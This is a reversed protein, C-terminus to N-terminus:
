VTLGDKYWESSGQEDLLEEKKVLEVAMQEGPVALHILWTSPAPIM